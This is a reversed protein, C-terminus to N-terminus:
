ARDVRAIAEEYLPRALERARRVRIREFMWRAQAKARERSCRGSTYWSALLEGNTELFSLSDAAQLLDEDPAGGTEHAVILRRVEGALAADAGEDELWDGAIQASRQSH